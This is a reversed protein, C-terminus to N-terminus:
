RVESPDSNLSNKNEYMEETDRGQREEEYSM